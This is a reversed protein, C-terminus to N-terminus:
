FNCGLLKQRANGPRTLEHRTARAEPHTLSYAGAATRSGETYPQKPMLWYAPPLVLLPDASAYDHRRGHARSASIVESGAGGGLPKALLGATDRGGDNVKLAFLVAGKV